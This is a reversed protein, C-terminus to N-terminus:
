LYYHSYLTNAWSWRPPPLWCGLSSKAFARARQGEDTVVKPRLMAYGWFGGRAKSKVLLSKGSPSPSLRGCSVRPFLQWGVGEWDAGWKAGEKSPPMPLPVCDVDQFVSWSEPIM